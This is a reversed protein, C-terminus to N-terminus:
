CNLTRTEEGESESETFKSPPALFRYKKFNIEVKLLEMPSELVLGPTNLYM